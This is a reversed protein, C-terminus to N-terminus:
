GLASFLSLEQDVGFSCARLSLQINGFTLSGAPLAAVCTRYLSSSGSKQHGTQSFNRDNASTGFPRLDEPCQSRWEALYQALSDNAAGRGHNLFTVPVWGHPEREFLPLLQLAVITHRDWIEDKERMTPEHERFWAAFEIGAPLQHEPAAIRQAAYDNFWAAYDRWAPVPSNNQWSRSMARLTFLSATECLSEELWYNARSPSSKSPRSNNSFNALAHCFEHAFQFSYQTWRTDQAALGVAIATAVGRALENVM